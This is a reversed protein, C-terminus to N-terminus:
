GHSPQSSSSRSSSSSLAEREPELERELYARLANLSYHQQGLRYNHSVATERKAPNTLLDIAQDAAQAILTPNVQALGNADHGTLKDGLSVAQLGVPKIDATYVPYEFLMFPRRMVLTELLQNGWGEWLSPYTVFDAYVYSDWLSYIKQGNASIARRSGIKDDIFLLDVGLQDAKAQLKPVYQGTTDDEAYGALVLVIRSDPTFLRGNGLGAAALRARRAPQNLAHVFDIALEIGKRPVIRTAQLIFVDAARLGIAARFDHNYDDEAAPPAAFDFVNPIVVADIGKRARLESQALSNIVGHRILPDRPPLFKDALAVATGCTLAVGAVREWYFDHNHAFTPIRQERIVQALAPAAAPNVGVSFINHPMLLDIGKEAVFRRLQAAITDALGYLEARYAAEDYDQLATFTNANLRRADPRQHYLEPILFGDLAGLDGGCLHVTHGMEQLVRQWKDIELSVGDTSGVKFHLLGITSM